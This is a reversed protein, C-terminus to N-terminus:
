VHRTPDTHSAPESGRLLSPAKCPPVTPSAQLSERPMREVSDWPSARGHRGCGCASTGFSPERGHVVPRWSAPRGFGDHAQRSGSFRTRSCTPAHAAGTRVPTAYLPLPNTRQYKRHLPKRIKNSDHPPPARPATETRAPPHVHHRFSASAAAETAPGAKLCCAPPQNQMQVRAPPLRSLGSRRFAEAVAQPLLSAAEGCQPPKAAHSIGGRLRHGLLSCPRQLPRVFRHRLSSPLAGVLGCLRGRQHCMVLLLLLPTSCLSV